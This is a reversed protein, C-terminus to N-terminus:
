DARMGRVAGGPSTIESADPSARSHNPQSNRSYATALFDMLFILLQM